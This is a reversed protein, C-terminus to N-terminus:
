HIPQGSAWLDSTEKWELFDGCVYGTEGHIMLNELPHGEPVLPICGTLMAEVTSRGWSGIFKHGLPYVLRDMLSTWFSQELFVANNPMVTIQCHQHLLLLLHHLKTDAGGLFTPWGFIFVQPKPVAM